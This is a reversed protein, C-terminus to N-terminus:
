KKRELCLMTRPGPTVDIRIAWWNRDAWELHIGPVLLVELPQVALFTFLTPVGPFHEGAPAYDAATQPPGDADQSAKASHMTYSGVHVAM